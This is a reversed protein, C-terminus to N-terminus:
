TKGYKNVLKDMFLKAPATEELANSWFCLDIPWWEDDYGADLIAKTISDFDLKGKGFPAHTSTHNDHLTGDSDIFHVAGIKGTLMHAFQVVGGPLTERAGLQRAAVVGCMYAHCSDFMVKFNPHDVRYTMRVVESPKNFLFGPEFEWVFRVGSKACLEASENWREATTSFATEYDLGGPIGTPPDVTETRLKGIGMEHCMELHGKVVDLYETKGTTIPSPFPAAVGSIGLGADDLMKKLEARKERTNPQLHPEFAGFEIGDFKLEKLKKVVTPFPIPKDAYGGWIYAWTGVSIKKRGM